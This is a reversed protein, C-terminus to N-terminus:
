ARETGAKGKKKLKELLGQIKKEQENTGEDDLEFSVNIWSGERANEPLLQRPVEVKIEKDGFLMVAFDGEFRDIVAKM